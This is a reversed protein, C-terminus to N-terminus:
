LLKVTLEGLTFCSCCILIVTLFTDQYHGANQESVYMWKSISIILYYSHQDHNRGWLLSSVPLSALITLYASPPFSKVTVTKSIRFLVVVFFCQSIKIGTKPFTLITHATIGFEESCFLSFCAVRKEINFLACLFFRGLLGHLREM